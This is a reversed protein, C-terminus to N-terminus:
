GQLLQIALLFTLSALYKGISEVSPTPTVGIGDHQRRVFEDSGLIPSISEICQVCRGTNDGCCPFFLVFDLSLFYDYLGVFDLLSADRLQRGGSRRWDEYIILGAVSTYCLMRLRTCPHTNHAKATSSPAPLPPAMFRLTTLIVPTIVPHGLQRARTANAARGKHSLINLVTGTELLLPKIVMATSARHPLLPQQPLSLM